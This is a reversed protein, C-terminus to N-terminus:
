DKSPLSLTLVPEGIDGGHVVAKLEINRMQGKNMVFTVTFIFESSDRNLRANFVFLNLCDWLRGEISQGVARPDPTIFESWLLQTVAVPLRIGAQQTLKPDVEILLGDEIAQRRSYISIIEADDWFGM